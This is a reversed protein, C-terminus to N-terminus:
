GHSEIKKLEIMTVNFLPYGEIQRAASIKGKLTSICKIQDAKDMLKLEHVMDIIEKRKRNPVRLINNPSIVCGTVEKHSNPSFRKTKKEKLSHGYAMLINKIEKDYKKPIYKDYSLTMDDVFLSFKFNNEKSFLYIKDFMDRYSWYALMQSCPSGIPISGNHTTLNTLVWAVDESMMLKYRFFRFVYETQCNPYFDKIDYNTIYGCPIHYKANDVHCLKKKGSFLYEPTFIRSLLKLFNSQINKLKPKPDYIIRTKKKTQISREVYNKESRLIKKIEKSNTRLLSYLKRKNELNFLPSETINYYKLEQM